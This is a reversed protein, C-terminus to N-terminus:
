INAYIKLGEMAPLNVGIKGMLGAAMESNSFFSFLVFTKSYSHRFYAM